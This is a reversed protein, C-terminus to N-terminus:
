PNAELAQRGALTLYWTEVTNATVREIFRRGTLKDLTARVVTDELNTKRQIRRATHFRRRDDRMHRLINSEDPSLSPREADAPIAAQPEDEAELDAEVMVHKVAEVQKTAEMALERAAAAEGLATRGIQQLFHRASISALVCFGVFYLTEARAPDELVKGTIPSETLRLFLPVVAAAAIGYLLERVWARWGVPGNRTALSSISGGLVGAGVVISLVIIINM